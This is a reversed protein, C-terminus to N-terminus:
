VPWKCKVFIPDCETWFSDTQVTNKHSHKVSSEIFFDFVYCVKSWKVINSTCESSKNPTLIRSLWNSILWCFRCKICIRSLIGHKKKSYRQLILLRVLIFLLFFIVCVYWTWILKDTSDTFRNHKRNFRDRLVYFSSIQLNKIIKTKKRYLLKSIWPFHRVNPWSKIGFHNKAQM